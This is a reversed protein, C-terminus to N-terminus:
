GRSFLDQISLVRAKPNTASPRDQIAFDYTERSVAVEEAWTEGKLFVLRCSPNMQVFPLAYSLLLPLPALARATIMDAYFPPVAEIRQTHITVPIQTERSVTRMFECKKEDSEVLHVHVDPRALALALGPFGAGSGFDVVTKVGDGLASLLQLSDIFHRDWAAEMTAPAVLNIRKQWKILLAHYLDLRDRVNSSLAPAYITM